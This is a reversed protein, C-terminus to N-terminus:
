SRNPAPTTARTPTRSSTSRRTTRTESGSSRRRAPVQGPLRRRRLGRGGGHGPRRPIELRARRDRRGRHPGSPERSRGVGDPEVAKTVVDMVEVADGVAFIDPNSTRMHEDVRIGGREGIELGAAKALTTEPRVGLSLIVVDAPHSKGSQTRVELSGDAANEFSAVGDGLALRVGNRELYGEVGLALERDLPAVVQDLMEVITVEFGRHTLNEAMELGIFGGGVVVARTKPRVTQFGTYSHMGTLFETGQALWERIKRADPVTRVQFIGPLDIGPIPPRISAAGPSLM